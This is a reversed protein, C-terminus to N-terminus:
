WIEFGELHKGRIVFVLAGLAGEFGYFQWLVGHPDYDAPLFIVDGIQLGDREDFTQAYRLNPRERKNDNAQSELRSVSNTRNHGLRSSNPVVSTPPSGPDAITGECAGLYSVAQSSRLRLSVESVRLRADRGKRKGVGGVVHKPIAFSCAM